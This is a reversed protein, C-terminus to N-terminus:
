KKNKDYYYKKNKIKMMIINKIKTMINNKIKIMIINKIKIMIINKIKMGEGILLKIFISAIFLIIDSANTTVMEGDAQFVYIYIDNYNHM